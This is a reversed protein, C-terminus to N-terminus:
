GQARNRELRHEGVQALVVGVRSAQVGLGLGRTDRDLVCALLHRRAEARPRALDHEGGGAGFRHVGRDESREGPASPPWTTVM